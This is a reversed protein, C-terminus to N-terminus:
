LTRTTWRSDGAAFPVLETRGGLLRDILGAVARRAAVAPGVVTAVKVAVLATGTVRIGPLDGEDLVFEV